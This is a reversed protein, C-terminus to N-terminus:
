LEGSVMEPTSVSRCVEGFKRHYHIVQAERGSDYGHRSAHADKAALTRHQEVVMLSSEKVHRHHLHGCHCYSYQTRGFVDRFKSAMVRDLENVKTLHGHHFFLSCNGWEVCYYPDPRTDVFVRPENEYFMSFMESLWVGAHPDHNGPSMIVHINQHKQLLLHVVQRLLRIATRVALHFRTDADLINGSAFTVPELSDFHLFDGINALVATNSQPSQAIATKFWELLTREAIEVDWDAGTEEGWALMALHYDTLVYCSLLDDYCYDPPTTPTAPTIEESLADVVARLTDYATQKDESASVWRLKDEGTEADQLVSMKKVSLHEPFTRNLQNDPDFGAKAARDKVRQYARSVVKRDKGLARAAQAYTDSDTLQDLTEVETDTKAYDYLKPDIHM